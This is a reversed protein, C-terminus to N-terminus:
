KQLKKAIILNEIIMAITMPGVGGPVPTIYSALDKINDFDFDGVLKGDEFNIGVDIGIFGNKVMDKNILKSKGVASVLIDATKTIDGLNETKSHCITVTADENLMMLALPKGVIESRGVIVVHKSKININHHKILKIIGKATCPALTNNSQYLNYVNEKTFGDIDKLPNILGACKKFDIHNPTPSQLIIGNVLPDNNLKDILSILDEEKINEDLKHLNVKISVKECYKIKNNVYTLSAKNNGVLIIVLRIDLKDKSIIEKYEDLLSLRYDKGSLIEM